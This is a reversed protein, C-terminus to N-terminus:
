EVKDLEMGLFQMWTEGDRSFEGVEIWKNETSFDATFRVKGGNPVDLGWRFIKEGPFEIDSVALGEKKYARIKITQDETDYFIVGFADHVVVPERTVSDTVTGLGDVVFINCGIKCEANEWVDTYIKGSQTMMFGRGQWEGLMFSIRDLPNATEANQATAGPNCLLFVSCAFLLHKM